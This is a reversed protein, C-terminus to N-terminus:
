ILQNTFQSFLGNKGRMKKNIQIEQVKRQIDLRFNPIHIDPCNEKPLIHMKMQIFAPYAVM